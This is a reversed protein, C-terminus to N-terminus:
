PCLAEFDLIPTLQKYVVVTEDVHPARLVIVGYRVPEYPLLDLDYVRTGKNVDVGLLPSLTAVCRREYM